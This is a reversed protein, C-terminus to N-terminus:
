RVANNDGIAELVDTCLGESPYGPVSARIIRLLVARAVPDSETCYRQQITLLQVTGDVASGSLEGLQYGDQLRPFTCASLSVAMVSAFFLKKVLNERHHNTSGM